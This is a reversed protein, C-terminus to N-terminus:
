IGHCLGPSLFEDWYLLSKAAFKSVRGGDMRHTEFDARANHPSIAQIQFWFHMISAFQERNAFSVHDAFVFHPAMSHPFM